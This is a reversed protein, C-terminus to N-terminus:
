GDAAQVTRALGDIREANPLGLLAAGSLRLKSGRIGSGVVLAPQDAVAGDVLIRWGDPLGLATIGGYEMGTLGVADDMPLFSAKRVDLLRRVMGNVDARDTARVLCAAYRPEGERKGAVVVCNASETLSVGYAACFAATDSLAGDIAAVEVQDASSWGALFAAVRDGLLQPAADVPRWQLSRDAVPDGM